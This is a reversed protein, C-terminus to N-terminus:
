YIASELVTERYAEPDANLLQLIAPAQEAESEQIIERAEEYRRQVVLADAIALEVSDIFSERQVRQPGAMGELEREARERTERLRVEGLAPAGTRVYIRGLDYRGELSLRNIHMLGIYVDRAEELEGLRIYLAALQHRTPISNPNLELARRYSEVAARPENLEGAQLEALSVYHAYNRPEREIAVEIARLAEQPRGQQRYLASEYVLPRASFPNLRAALELHELAAETDGAAALRQQEATYRDSFYIGGGLLMVAATVFGVAIRFIAGSVM